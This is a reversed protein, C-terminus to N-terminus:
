QNPILQQVPFHFNLIPYLMHPSPANFCIDTQANTPAVFILATVLQYYTPPFPPLNKQLFGQVSKWRFFIARRLWRIVGTMNYVFYKQEFKAFDDIAGRRIILQHSGLLWELIKQLSSHFLPEANRQLCTVSIYSTLVGQNWVSNFTLWTMLSFLSHLVCQQLLNAPWHYKWFLLM